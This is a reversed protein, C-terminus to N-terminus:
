VLSCLSTSMIVIVLEFLLKPVDELKVRIQHYASTVDINSFVWARILQNMLDDIRPLPYKFTVNNLQRYDVSLRLSRDKKKVLLMFSGQPICKIEFLLCKGLM